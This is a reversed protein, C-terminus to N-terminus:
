NELTKLLLAMKHLETYAQELLIRLMRMKLEDTPMSDIKRLHKKYDKFRSDIEKKEENTM